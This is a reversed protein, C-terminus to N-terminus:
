AANATPIFIGSQTTYGQANQAANKLTIFSSQSPTIAPMYAPGENALITASEYNNLANNYEAFWEKYMKSSQQIKPDFGNNSGQKIITDLNQKLQAINDNKGTAPVPAPTNTKQILTDVEAQSMKGETSYTRVLEDIETQTLKSKTNVQMDNLLTDVEAQSLKGDTSYTKVLEDIETQSLKGDTKVQIDDLLADIDKQSMTKQGEAGYKKATQYNRIPTTLKGFGAKMMDKGAGLTDKGYAGLQERLTVKEGSAAKLKLDNMNTGARGRMAKIGGILATLSLIGNAAHDGMQDVIAKADADTMGKTNACEKLAKIDSGVAVASSAVGLAAAGTGIAIVFPGTVPNAALAIAGVTVLAPVFNGKMAETVPAAIKKLLGEGTKKLFLGFVGDELKGDDNGDTCASDVDLKEPKTENGSTLISIDEEEKSVGQEQTTLTQAYYAPQYTTDITYPMSM